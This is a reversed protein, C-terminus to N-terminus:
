TSDRWTNSCRGADTNRGIHTVPRPPRDVPRALTLRENELDVVQGLRQLATVDASERRSAVFGHQDVDSRMGEVWTQILRAM